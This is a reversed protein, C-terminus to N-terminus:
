RRRLKCDMSGNGFSGARLELLYRGPRALALAALKQCRDFAADSDLRFTLDRTETEGQVLGEIELRGGFMGVLDVAEFITTTTTFIPNAAEARPTAAFMLSCAVLLRVFRKV